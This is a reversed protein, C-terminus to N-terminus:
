NYNMLKKILSKNTLEIIKVSGDECGVYLCNNYNNNLNIDNPQIIGNNNNYDNQDIKVKLTENVINNNNSDSYTSNNDNIRNRKKNLHTKNYPSINISNIDLIEFNIIEEKM